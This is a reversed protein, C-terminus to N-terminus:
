ARMRWRWGPRSRACGGSALCARYAAEGDRTLRALTARRYTLYYYSTPVGPHGYHGTFTTVVRGETEQMRRLMEDTIGQFELGAAGEVRLLGAVSRGLM